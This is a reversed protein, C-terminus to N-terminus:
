VKGKGNCLEKKTKATRALVCGVPNPYPAGERRVAIM